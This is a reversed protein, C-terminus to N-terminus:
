YLCVLNADLIPSGLPACQSLCYLPISPISPNSTGVHCFFSKVPVYLMSVFFSFWFRKFQGIEVRNRFDTFASARIWLPSLPSRGGRTMQFIVFYLTEQCYQDPDVSFDCVLGANLTLGNNARRRHPGAKIPIQIGEDVLFVVRLAPGGRFFIISGRM